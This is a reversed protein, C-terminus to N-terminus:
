GAREALLSKVDRELSEASTGFPWQMVVTGTDDIAYLEGTHSVEVEGEANTSVEYDAGIAETAARLQTDDDTRLATGDAVFNHVYDTIVEPGDRGPDITTMAVSVRAAEDAPLSELVTRVDAMTTPCVDPCSTYGFFVLNLEGPQAKMQWDGSGDAVPLSVGEVVVPPDVTYGSYTDPDDAGDADSRDSGSSGCGTALVVLGTAVVAVWRLAAAAGRLNARGSM